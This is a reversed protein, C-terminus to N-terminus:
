TAPRLDKPNQSIKWFVKKLLVGESFQKQLYVNTKHM